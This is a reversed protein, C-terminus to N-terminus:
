NKETPIVIVRQFVSNRPIIKDENKVKKLGDLIFDFICYTERIEENDICSEAQCSPQNAYKKKKFELITDKIIYGIPLPCLLDGTTPHVGGNIYEEIILSDMLFTDFEPTIQDFSLGDILKSDVQRNNKLRIKIPKNVLAYIIDCSRIKAPNGGKKEEFVKRSFLTYTENNTISKEWLDFDILQFLSNNIMSANNDYPKFPVDKADYFKDIGPPLNDLNSSYKEISEGVGGFSLFDFRRYKEFM